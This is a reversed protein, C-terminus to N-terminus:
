VKAGLARIAFVAISALQEVTAGGKGAIKMGSLTAM